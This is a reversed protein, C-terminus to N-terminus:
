GLDDAKDTVPTVAPRAPKALIGPFHLAHRECAEARSCVAMSLANEEGPKLRFAAGRL